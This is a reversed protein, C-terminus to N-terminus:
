SNKFNIIPLGQPFYKSIINPDPPLTNDLFDRLEKLSDKNEALKPDPRNKIKEEYDAIALIQEETLGKYTVADQFVNKNWSQFDKLHGVLLHHNPAPRNHETECLSCLNRPDLELDPRGCLIALHFPVIAHHIQVGVKGYNEEKCVICNPNNKLFEEEVHHWHPSRLVGHKLAINQGNDIKNIM